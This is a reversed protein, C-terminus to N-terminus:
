RVSPHPSFVLCGHYDLIGGQCSVLVDLRALEAIDNADKLPAVPKGIAPGAGGVNSTTFFVPDISDFDREERMREMPYQLLDEGEVVDSVRGRIIFLDWRSALRDIQRVAQDHPSFAVTRAWLRFWTGNSSRSYGSKECGKM